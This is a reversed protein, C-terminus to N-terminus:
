QREKRPPRGLVLKNKGKPAVIKPPKLVTQVGTEDLNYIREPTFSFKKHLKLYNDFFDKVKAQNFGIGRALSTNEPKRLSLDNGKWSDQQLYQEATTNELIKRLRSQLTPRKVGHAKTAQRQSLRKSFVVKVARRLAVESINNRDSKSIYNRVM